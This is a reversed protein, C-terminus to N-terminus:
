GKEKEMVMADERWVWTCVLELAAVAMFAAEEASGFECSEFKGLNCAGGREGGVLVM